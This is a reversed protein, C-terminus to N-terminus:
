EKEETPYPSWDLKQGCDPCYASEWDNVGEEFEHECTPCYATDYCPVGDAYGDAVYNPRTAKTREGETERFAHYYLNGVAEALKILKKLLKADMKFKLTSKVSTSLGVTVTLSNVEGNNDVNDDAFLSLQSNPYFIVMIPYNDDVIIPALDTRDECFKTLKEVAAEYESKAPTSKRAM